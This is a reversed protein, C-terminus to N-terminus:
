QHHPGETNGLHSIGGQPYLRLCSHEADVQAPLRLALSRAVLDLSGSGSLPRPCREDVRGGQETAEAVEDPPGRLLIEILHPGDFRSERRTVPGLRHLRCGKRVIPLLQHVVLLLSRDSEIDVLCVRNGPERGLSRRTPPVNRGDACRAHADRVDDDPHVPSEDRTLLPEVLDEPLETEEVGLGLLLLPGEPVPHVSAAAHDPGEHGGAGGHIQHLGSKQDLSDDERAFVELSVRGLLLFETVDRVAETSADLPILEHRAALPIRAIGRIRRLEVHHLVGVGGEHHPVPMRHLAERIKRDPPGVLGQHAIKEADARLGMRDVRHTEVLPPHIGLATEALGSLVEADLVAPSVAHAPREEEGM